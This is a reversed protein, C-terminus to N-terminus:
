KTNYIGDVEVRLWGYVDGGDADDGAAALQEPLRVQNPPLKSGTLKNGHSAVMYHERQHHPPHYLVQRRRGGCATSASFPTATHFHFGFRRHLLGGYLMVLSVLLVAHLAVLPPTCLSCSMIGDDQLPLISSDM